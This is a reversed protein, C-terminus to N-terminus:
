YEFSFLEDEIEDLSEGKVSFIVSLITESHCFGIKRSGAPTPFVLPAELLACGQESLISVKGKVLMSVGFKKFKAGCVISNAPTRVTRMYLGDRLQHDMGIEAKEHSNFSQIEVWDMYGRLEESQRSPSLHRVAEMVPQFHGDGPLMLGTNM